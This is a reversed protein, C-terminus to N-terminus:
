SVVARDSLRRWDTGDSFAPIAGGAEDNVYVLSKPHNAAAPLDAVNYAPLPGLARFATGGTRKLLANVTRLLVGFEATPMKELFHAGKNVNVEDARV